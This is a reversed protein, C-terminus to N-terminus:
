GHRQERMAPELRPDIGIEVHGETRWERETNRPRPPDDNVQLRKAHMPFSAQRAPNTQGM